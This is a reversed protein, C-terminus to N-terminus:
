KWGVLLKFMEWLIFGMTIGGVLAFIWVWLSFEESDSM